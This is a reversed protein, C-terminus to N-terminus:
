KRKRPAVRLLKKADETLEIRQVQLAADPPSENIISKIIGHQQGETVIPSRLKDLAFQLNQKLRPSNRDIELARTTLNVSEEYLGLYFASVGALDLPLAGWAEPECIYTLPREVITLAQKMAYYCGVHDKNAYYMKGLDVWPEREKPAEAVSRLHWRIAEDPRGLM